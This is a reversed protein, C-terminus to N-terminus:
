RRGTQLRANRDDRINKRARVGRAKEESKTERRESGGAADKGSTADSAEGKGEPNKAMSEWASRAKELWTRGDPKEAKEVNSEVREGQKESRAMLDKAEKERRREEEREIEASGQGGRWWERVIKVLAQDDFGEGYSAGDRLKWVRGDARGAANQVLVIYTGERPRHGAHIMEDYYRWADELDGVQLCVLILRDYTLSNPAVNLALMESALFMAKSKDGARVCGRLLANFTATTPGSSCLLHLEQYISLATPLDNLHDVAAQIFVNVATPPIPNNSNEHLDHLIKLGKEVFKPVSHLYTYIPRTSAETPPVGSAAMTTLLSLATRLDSSAIYSELLAEYHHRELTHTRNGLIRFVDTALRSDGHRAATSLVNICIGSPPNLYGSEVRRRWAFQTLPLHFSSSASDLVYFWLTGSINLEGADIRRQMMRLVEDFEHIDCLNYILTDYLWPKVNGREKEMRDLGDMALELQRDRLFGLIVDHCGNDTLSFWRQRLQELIIPRLLYDPHISLVQFRKTM